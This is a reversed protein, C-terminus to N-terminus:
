PKQSVIRLKRPRPAHDLRPNMPDEHVAHIPHAKEDLNNALRLADELLHAAERPARNERARQAASRLVAVARDWVGAAEYHLAIERCVAWESGAFIQSLREAIRRHSLARRAAPQRRYLVERYLSHVFVLFESRRGGPLEDQGGREIFHLRRAMAACSEEIASEDEELAAAVAWSPFAIGAISGAELIRQEEATLTEIQLEIMQALQDPVETQM